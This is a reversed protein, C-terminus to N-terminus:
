HKITELSQMLLVINMALEHHHDICDYLRRQETHIRCDAGHSNFPYGHDTGTFDLSLILTASYETVESRLTENTLLSSYDMSPMLIHIM